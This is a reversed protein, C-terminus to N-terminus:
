AIVLAGGVMTLLQAAIWALITAVAVKGFLEALEGNLCITYTLFGPLHRQVNLSVGVKSGLITGSMLPIDKSPSYTTGAAYSLGMRNMFAAISLLKFAGDTIGSGSLPKIEYYDKRIGDDSMIDPRKVGPFEAALKAAQPGSALSPNHTVLFNKYATPNNNDVFTTAPSCGLTDCYDQEILREAITGFGSAFQSSQFESVPFCLHQGGPPFATTTPTLSGGILSQDTILGGGETGADMSFALAPAPAHADQVAKTYLSQADEPTILNEAQARGLVNGLDQLDRNTASPQNPMARPGGVGRGGAGSGGESGSQGARAATAVAAIKVANDALNKLIDATEARGSMDRFINPTALLNMATSMGTPDPANPPNVINVISAPLQTANLNQQQPQPTVATIPAIEPAMRPIPSQQWDWFRTNDILESANCHGLMAEAFVGRTSLAVLREDVIVEDPEVEDLSALIKDRWATETGPFAMYEGIVDVPRNEMKELVNSGDTFRIADFEAAREVPNQNLLIARSYFGKHLRLHAILELGKAHDTVDSAAFGPPPAPPLPVPLTPLVRRRGNEDNNNTVILHGNEYSQDLLVVGPRGTVDNMATLKIRSFSAKATESGDPHVAVVLAISTIFDWGVNGGGSPIGVFTNTKFAESFAGFNNLVQGGDINTLDVAAGGRGLLSSRIDISQDHADVQRHFGGTTMEFEFFRFATPQAALAPAAPPPPLPKTFDSFPAGRHSLREIANFGEAFKANLLAAELATRHELINQAAAAGEFWDTKMRVLVAPRRRVLETSVRFHRLVEYYLITLAHSHNYNAVTRTEITEKESQTSQVVVTSRLERSASSLQTINDSVKQVTTAAVNRTGSSNSTSGGLSGAIGASLFGGFSAGAAGAIGGMFSSGRQYERVAADVTESILRDRHENHILQEDVTTREKRQAEDRRTWDIVALNVSEGPALPLSYLIQGLSHGLSYWAVRYENIVGLQVQGATVSAVPPAVDTLRVVQYLYFEQLSVNAPLISECGDAGVLSGPNTAFSGPSLRWDDLSPNQMAPLALNLVADPILPKAIELRGVIAGSTFRGQSLVDFVMGELGTPYISITVDLVATPDLRRAQIATAVAQRVTAPLRSLNYSLYGTHDTALVGLPYAWLTPTPKAPPELRLGRKDAEKRIADRIARQLTDRDLSRLLAGGSADRVRAIVKMIFEAPDGARLVDDANPGLQRVLEQGIVEVLRQRPQPEVLNESADMRLAVLIPDNLQDDFFVAPEDTESRVVIEAYVPMRAIPLATGHELAFLALRTPAVLMQLAMLGELGLFQPLTAFVEKLGLIKLHISLAL